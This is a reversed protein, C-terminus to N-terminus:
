HNTEILFSRARPANRELSETVKRRSLEVVLRTQATEIFTGIQDVREKAEGIDKDVNALAEQFHAIKLTEERVKDDCTEVAIEQNRITYQNVSERRLKDLHDHAKRCDVVQSEAAARYKDFDSAVNKWDTILQTGVDFREQLKALNAQINNITDSSKGVDGRFRSLPDTVTTPTANKAPGDQAFLSASFTLLCLCSIPLMSYGWRKMAPVELVLINGNFTCKIGNM